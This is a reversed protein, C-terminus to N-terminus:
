SQLTGGIRQRRLSTDSDLTGTRLYSTGQSLGERIGQLKERTSRSETRFKVLSNAASHIENKLNLELKEGVIELEDNLRASLNFHSYSAWGTVITLLAALLGAFIMLGADFRGYRSGPGLLWLKALPLSLLTLGVILVVWMFATKSFRLSERRLRQADVLVAVNLGLAKEVSETQPKPDEETKKTQGELPASLQVAPQLFARFSRGALEVKGILAGRAIRAASDPDHAQDPAEPGDDKDLVLERLQLNGSKIKSLLVNGQEDTLLAQDVQGVTASSGPEPSTIFESEFLNELPVAACVVGGAVPIYVQGELLRPTEGIGFAKKPCMEFALNVRALKAMERWLCLFADDDNLHEREACGKMGESYSPLVYHESVASFAEREARMAQQLSEVAETGAIVGSRLDVLAESREAELRRAKKVKASLRALASDDPDGQKAEEEWAMLLKLTQRYAAQVEKKLTSADKADPAAGGKKKSKPSPSSKRLALRKKAYADHANVFATASGGKTEGDPTPRQASRKAEDRLERLQADAYTQREIATKRAHAEKEEFTKKETSLAESAVRHERKAAPFDRLPAGLTKVQSQYGELRLRVHEAARAATRSYQERLEQEQSKQRATFLFGAVMLVLAVAGVTKALGARNRFTDSKKKATTESV